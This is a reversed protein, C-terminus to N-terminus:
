PLTLAARFGVDANRYYPESRSRFASRCVKAEGFWSGGRTVRLSGSAAGRPENESGSYGGFWDLCWEWVNGYMDYLGWANPRKQGAPHTANGASEKNWAM